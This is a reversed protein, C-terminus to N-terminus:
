KFMGLVEWGPFPRTNRNQRVHEEGTLLGQWYQRTVYVFEAWLGAAKNFDPAPPRPASDDFKALMENGLEGMGKVRLAQIREGLEASPLTQGPNHGFNKPACYPGRDESGGGGGREPYKPPKGLCEPRALEPRGAWVISSEGAGAHDDQIIWGEPLRFRPDYVALMPSGTKRKYYDIMLNIDNSVSAAHGSYLIAAKFGRADFARIHYFVNQYFLDVPLPNVVHEGMGCHDIAWNFRPEEDVHWAFYPAVMGGYEKATRECLMSATYWDVGLPNYHGHAEAYGYPMYVVPHADRKDFFEDPSLELWNTKVTM